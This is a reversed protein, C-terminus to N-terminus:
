RGAASRQCYPPQRTDHRAEPRRIEGAVVGRRRRESDQRLPPAEQEGVAAAAGAGDGSSEGQEIGQGNWVSKLCKCGM